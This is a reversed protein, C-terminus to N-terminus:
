RIAEALTAFMGRDTTIIVTNQNVFGYVIREKEMEDRLVRVDHNRVVDDEFYAPRVTSDDESVDFTSTVPEGFLPALEQSLSDEAVLLGGFATDFSTVRLVIFPETGLTGFNIENIARLLTPSSQWALTELIDSTSARTDGADSTTPDIVNIGGSNQSSSLIDEYFAVRSRPLLLKTQRDASVLPLQELTNVSNNQSVQGNSTTPTLGDDSGLLWMTTMVGGVVAVLAIVVSSTYFLVRPFNGFRKPEPTEKWKRAPAKAPESKITLAVPEVKIAPVEVKTEAQPEPEEKIPLSPIVPPALPKEPAKSVPTAEIIPATKEENKGEYHSWSPKADPSKKTIVLSPKNPASKDTLKKPLKDTLKKYDDKPAQASQKAAMKVVDKREEITSVTPTALRKEEAHREITEKGESFWSKVAEVMAPLLKFRERKKDTIITGETIESDTDMVNLKDSPNYPTTKSLTGLSESMEKSLESNKPVSLLTPPAPQSKPKEPVVPKPEPATVKVPEPMVAQPPAPPPAPIPVVIEPEPKKANLVSPIPKAPTPATSEVNAVESEPRPRLREMDSHFTRIKKLTDNNAGM